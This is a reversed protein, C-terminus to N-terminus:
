KIISDGICFFGRGMLLVWAFLRASDGLNYDLEVRLQQRTARPSLSYQSVLKHASDFKNKEMLLLFPKINERLSEENDVPHCAFMTEINAYTLTHDITKMLAHGIDTRPDSAFLEIIRTTGTLIAHCMCCLEDIRDDPNWEPIEINMWRMVHYRDMRYTLLVLFISEMLPDSKDGIIKRLESKNTKMFSIMEEDSLNDELVMHWFKRIVSQDEQQVLDGQQVLDEQQYSTMVNKEDDEPRQTDVCEIQEEM